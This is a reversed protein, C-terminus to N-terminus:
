SGEMMVHAVFPAIDSLQNLPLHVDQHLLDQKIMVFYVPNTTHATHMKHNDPNFMAEAKGHDSTIFLIGNQKDVIERKLTELQIDLSEIAKVTAQFDGTNSAIDANAYNIVYFDHPNTKLSEVTAQTIYGDSLHTHHTHPISPILIRTENNLKEQRGGNFFYTVHAHKETEAILCISYGHNNLMETLTQTIRPKQFLVTTPYTKGYSLPTIFCSLDLPKITTNDGYLFLHTLQQARDPKFNFFLIGDHPHIIHNGTLQIPEIYEQSINKQHAKQLADQWSLATDNQQETLVHYSKKTLHWNRNRDMAYFRGHLSGITGANHQKLWTDLKELHYSAAEQEKDQEDLFPHVVIPINHKYAAELFAYLHQTSSHENNESLLGMIHLTKKSHALSELAEYLKPLTAPDNNQLAENIITLPQKVITGCGITLHGVESNGAHGSPLGVASGSAQLLTWPYDSLFESFFPMHAHVVANYDTEKSYGFGDLIVLVTPFKNKM